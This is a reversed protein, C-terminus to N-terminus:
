SGKPGAGYSDGAKQAAQSSSGGEAQAVDVLDVAKTGLAVAEDLLELSRELSTKKDRVQDVLEDLHDLIQDFTQYPSTDVKAM